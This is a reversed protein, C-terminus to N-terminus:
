VYRVRPTARRRVTKALQLRVVSGCLRLRRRRRRMRLRRHGPRLRLLRRHRRLRRRSWSWSRCQSQSRSQRQRRRQRRGQRCRQRRRRRGQRSPTAWRRTLLATTRKAMNTSPSYLWLSCPWTSPYRRLRRCSSTMTLAMSPTAMTPLDGAAPRTAAARSGM